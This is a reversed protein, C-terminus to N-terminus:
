QSVQAAHRLAEMREAQTREFDQQMQTRAIIQQFIRRRAKGDDDSGFFSLLDEVRCNEAVQAHSLNNGGRFVLTASTRTPKVKRGSEKPAFRWQSLAMASSQVFSDLEGDSLPMNVADRSWSKLLELDTPVGDKRLTYAINLCVHVRRELMEAPYGPAAFTSGPAAAWTRGIGGENVVELDAAQLPSLSVGTALVISLVRVSLRRISM